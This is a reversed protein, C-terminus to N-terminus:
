PCDIDLGTDDWCHWETDEFHMPAMVQGNYNTRNWEIDVDVFAEKFFDFVHVDYFADLEAEQLGYIVYSDKFKDTERDNNLQRIYTYKINGVEEGEVTWDIRLMNEPYAASHNLIWYGSTGDTQSTGSFWLFEDFGDIGNKSIYMEWNIQNGALEGTLRATYQSTFGDVTYTWQWKSDGLFEAQKNLASNFSAVPVALTTFLATNWVGTVIRAYGWHDISTSETSKTSSSHANTFDDFDIVMSSLPPLVPAAGVEDSNDCSTFLLITSILTLYLCKHLNM